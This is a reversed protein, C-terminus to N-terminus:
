TAQAITDAVRSLEIAEKFQHSDRANSWSPRDAIALDALPPSIPSRAVILSPSRYPFSLDRKVRGTISSDLPGHGQHWKCITMVGSWQCGFSRKTWERDIHESYLSAIAESDTTRNYQWAIACHTVHFYVLLDDLQNLHTTRRQTGLCLFEGYRYAYVLDPGCSTIGLVCPPPEVPSAKTSALGFTPIACAGVGAAM